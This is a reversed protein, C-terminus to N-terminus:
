ARQAPRRGYCPSRPRRQLRGLTYGGPTFGYTRHLAAIKERNRLNQSDHASGSKTWTKTPPTTTERSRKDGRLEKERRQRQAPPESAEASPGGDSTAQGATADQSADQEERMYGLTAGPRAM